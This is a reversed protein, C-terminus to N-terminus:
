AATTARPPQPLGIRRAREPDRQFIEKVAAQYSGPPIVGRRENALMANFHNLTEHGRSGIGQEIPEGNRDTQYDFGFVAKRDAEEGARQCKAFQAESPEQGKGLGLLAMAADFGQDYQASRRPKNLFDDALIETATKM